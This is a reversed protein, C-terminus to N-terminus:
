INEIIVYVTLTNLPVKLCTFTISNAAQNSAYIGCEMYEAQSSLKPVITIVQSTETASVGNVTVSKSYLGNSSTWDATTLSITVTTKNSLSDLKVKDAPTMLGASSSSANNYKTDNDTWPVNVFMKGDALEVPYNKGNETYGIMVGGIETSSAQPIDGVAAQDWAAIKDPTIGDLRTKYANTFDNSSLGKGDEKDVKGDDITDVNTQIETIASSVKAFFNNFVTAPLRQGAKFGENQLNESPAQGQNKWNFIRNVWNM